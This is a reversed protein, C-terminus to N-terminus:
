LDSSRRRQSLLPRTKEPYREGPIRASEATQIRSQLHAMFVEACLADVAREPGGLAFRSQRSRMLGNPAHPHYPDIAHIIEHGIVRGLARPWLRRQKPERILHMTSMLASPFIYVNEVLGERKHVVGVTRNSLGWVPPPSPILIVRIQIGTVEVPPDSLSDLWVIDTAMSAFIEEVERRVREATRPKIGFRDFLTLQLRRMAPLPPPEAHETPLASATSPLDPPPQQLDAIEFARAPLAALLLLSLAFCFDRFIGIVSRM